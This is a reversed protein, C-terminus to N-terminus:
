AFYGSLERLCFGSPAKEANLAACYQHVIFLSHHVIITAGEARDYEMLFFTNAILSVTGSKYFV